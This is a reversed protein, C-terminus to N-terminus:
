LDPKLKPRTNQLLFQLNMSCLAKLYETVTINESKGRNKM